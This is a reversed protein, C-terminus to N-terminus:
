PDKEGQGVASWNLEARGRVSTVILTLRVSAEPSRPPFKVSYFVGHYRGIYPFFAQTTATIREIRRIEIPATKKGKADVLFVTWISRAREFDNDEKEPTYAYLVVELFEKAVSEAAEERERVAEPDLDHSRAYERAYAERFEASKLTATVHFRTEFQSYVTKERTWANLASLYEPSLGQDEAMQVYEKVEGCGSLAVLVLIVAWFLGARRKM